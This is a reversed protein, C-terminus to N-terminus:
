VLPFYAAFLSGHLLSAYLVSTYIQDDTVSSCKEAYDVTMDLSCNGCLGWTHSSACFTPPYFGVFDDNDCDQDTLNASSMGVSLEVVICPLSTIFAARLEELHYHDKILAEEYKVYLYADFYPLSCDDCTQAAVQSVDIALVLLFSCFDFSGAM